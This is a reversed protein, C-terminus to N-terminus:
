APEKQTAPEAIEEPQPSIAENERAAEDAPMLEGQFSEAVLKEFEEMSPLENVDKL